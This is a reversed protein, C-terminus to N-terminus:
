SCRRRSTSSSSSRLGGAGWRWAANRSTAWRAAIRDLEVAQDACQELFRELGLLVVDPEVAEELARALHEALGPREPTLLAALRGSARIPKYAVWETLGAVIAGAAGSVLLVAPIALWPSITSDHFFLHYTGFGAYAGVMYFEGHAFNILKIIGYVLTYGLAILAIVAGSCIGTVLLFVFQDM